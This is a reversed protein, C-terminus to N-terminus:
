RFIMFKRDVWILDRACPDKHWLSLFFFYKFNLFIFFFVSRISGVDKGVKSAYAGQLKTLKTSRKIKFFVEEGTSSVVQILFLFSNLLFASFLRFSLVIRVKINIPANVDEPKGDEQTNQQHGDDSM